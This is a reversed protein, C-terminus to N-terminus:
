VANEAFNPHMLAAVPLHEINLFGRHLSDHNSDLKRLMKARQRVSATLDLELDLARDCLARDEVCELRAIGHQAPGDAILNRLLPPRKQAEKGALFVQRM